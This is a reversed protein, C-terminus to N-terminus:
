VKPWMQIISASLRKGSPLRRKHLPEAKTFQERAYCVMGLNNLGTAVDPHNLGLAQEAAQVAKTAAMAAKTYNGQQFWSTAKRNLANWETAAHAVRGINLRKLALALASLKV